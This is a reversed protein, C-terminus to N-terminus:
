YEEFDLYNFNTHRLLFQTPTAVASLTVAAATPLVPVSCPSSVTFSVRGSRADANVALALTSVLRLSVKGLWDVTCYGLPVASVKFAVCSFLLHNVFNISARQVAMRNAVHFPNCRSFYIVALTLMLGVIVVVALNIATLTMALQMLSLRCAVTRIWLSGIM